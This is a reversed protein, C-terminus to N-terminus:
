YFDKRLDIGVYRGADRPVTILVYGSGTAMAGVYSKDFLNKAILAVHWGNAYNLGVSANFIGYAGQITYPSQGIDYQERTQFAYNGYLELEPGIPLPVRYDASLNAKFTPSFPLTKGNVNCNGQAGVPCTFSDIHADTLALGGNFTLGDIPRARTDLEIGRTSVSGANILRTVVQGAVTDYFNAQYNQYKTYFLAINAVYRHDASQTKAGIEFANSKEPKLALEDRAQMNFFTNFAPGKYGRSYTAYLMATSTLDFELGTRGSLGNADTFGSAAFSPNIGPVAVPSSSVRTEDYGVVDHTVRAGLIARLRPSFHITGEGYASYSDTLTNFVADGHTAHLTSEGPECPTLGAAVNPLTSASCTVADRQYNERDQTHMFYLGAVYDFWQGKPSTIRLEQSVQTFGLDGHDKSSPIQEYITPVWAEDTVQTNDWHRLASISTLTYGGALSWDIQASGGWNVDDVWPSDTVNIHQNSLSATVPLLATNYIPNTVKGIVGSAYTDRSHMYDFAFTAKLDANPTLVFKARVGTHDYGNVKDDNFANTVNGGYHGVLATLSGTLVGPVITGSIGARVRQEGGSFFQTDIYGTTEHSPDQTVVNIVGASANKGFLTGQPGRLVEVHDVDLLDLTAQGPRAYVVGDVVTSVSPEVGPSTSNTGVGRITLTTDKSSLSPKFTLAPVETVLSEISNNYARDMEAGSVVTVAVPVKQVSESRRTATVVVTPLATVGTKGDSAVAAGSAPSAAQATATATATAASADAPNSTQAHVVFPASTLAAGLAVAAWPTHRRRSVFPYRARAGARKRTHRHIM